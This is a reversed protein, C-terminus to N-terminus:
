WSGSAGGGGGSGGGGSFGGGGGWDSSGGGGWSSGGGGGFGPGWLIVPAGGRGYRRGGARRVMPLIVFLIIIIWFIIAGLGPSRNLARQRERDGVQAARKQMEEAPLSMFQILQDAGATIGGAVDGAKFKPTIVDRIIVSSVADTLLVRAGYGTEVRVRKENPAVILIVGDDVGKRGIGWTRLLQYGYDEITRGELSPVTAVVLQRGTGAELAELKSSIDVAQASSLLHANDVVRGTLPPFTQASAPAGLLLLLLAFLKTMGALAPVWKKAHRQTGAQAPIVFKM